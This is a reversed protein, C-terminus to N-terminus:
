PESKLVEKLKKCLEIERQLLLKVLDDPKLGHLANPGFESSFPKSISDFLVVANDKAMPYKNFLQNYVEGFGLCCLLQAKVTNVRVTLSKCSSFPNHAYWDSQNEFFRGCTNCVVGTPLDLYVQREDEAWHLKTERVPYKSDLIFDRRELLRTLIPKTLEKLEFSKSSDKDSYVLKLSVNSLGILQEIFERDEGIPWELSAGEVLAMIRYYSTKDRAEISLWHAARIL